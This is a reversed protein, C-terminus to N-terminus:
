LLISTVQHGSRLGNGGTKHKIMARGPLLQIFSATYDVM